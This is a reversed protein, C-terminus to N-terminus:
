WISLIRHNRISNNCYSSGFTVNSTFLPFHFSLVVSSLYTFITFPCTSGGSAGTLSPYLNKPQAELEKAIFGSSSESILKVVLLFTNATQFSFKLAVTFLGDVKNSFLGIVSLIFTIVM